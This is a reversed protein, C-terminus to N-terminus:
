ATSDRLDRKPVATILKSTNTDILSLVL